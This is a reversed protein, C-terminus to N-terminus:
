WTTSPAKTSQVRPVWGEIPPAAPASMDVFASSITNVLARALPDSRDASDCAAM